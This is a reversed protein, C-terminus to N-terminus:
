ERKYLNVTKEAIDDWNYKECIFDAAQKRLQMVKAPHDCAEQLKERIDSDTGYRAVDRVSMTDRYCLCPKLDGTATM